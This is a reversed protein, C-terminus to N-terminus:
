DWRGIPARPWTGAYCASRISDRVDSPFPSAELDFLNVTVAFAADGGLWRAVERKFADRDDGVYLLMCGYRRFWPLFHRPESSEAKELQRKLAAILHEQRQIEDTLVQETAANM